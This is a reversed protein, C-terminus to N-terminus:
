IQLLITFPEGFTNTETRNLSTAPKRIFERTGRDVKFCTLDM